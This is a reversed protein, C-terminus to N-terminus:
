KGARGLEARVQEKLKEIRAQVASISLGVAEGTQELTMNDHYKYFYIRRTTEDQEKLIIKVIIKAEVLEYGNDIIGAEWKERGQEGREKFWELSGNTATNYIEILERRAKKKTNLGMNKAATSLYTKPFSTHFKGETKLKQIKAFVEHAADKADEENYLVSLCRRYVLSYYNVYLLGIEEDDTKISLEPSRNEVGFPPIQSSNSPTTSDKYIM